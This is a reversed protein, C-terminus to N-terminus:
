IALRFLSSDGDCGHIDGPLEAAQEASVYPDFAVVKMGLGVGCIRAMRKGVRGLGVLGLIKGRVEILTPEETFLGGSTLM